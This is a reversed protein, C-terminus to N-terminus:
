RSEKIFDAVYKTIRGFSFIFIFALALAGFVPVFKVIEMLAYGIIFDVVLYKEENGYLKLKGNAIRGVLVPSLAAAAIIFIIFVFLLMLAVPMGILTIFSIFIILPNLIFSLIGYAVRNWVEEKRIPAVLGAIRKRFLKYFAMGLILLSLFKWIIVGASARQATKKLDDPNGAFNEMPVKEAKGKVVGQDVAVDTNSAYTLNGDVGADQRMMVENARLDADGGVKGSLLIQSGYAKANGAIRGRLEIKGGVAYLNGKVFSNEGVTVSGGVVTVNKEVTGDLTINGGLVRVNGGSNGSVRVNEGALIVDGAANGSFSLNSGASIADGNVNGAVDFDPNGLQIYDTPINQGSPVFINKNEAALAIAAACFCFALIFILPKKYVM